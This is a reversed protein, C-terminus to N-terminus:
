FQTFDRLGVFHKQPPTVLFSIFVKRIGATILFIDSSSEWRVITLICGTHIKFATMSHVISRLVFTSRTKAATRPNLVIERALPCTHLSQSSTNRKIKEESFM